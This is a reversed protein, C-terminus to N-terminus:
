RSTSSVELSSSGQDALSPSLEPTPTKNAPLPSAEMKLEQVSCSNSVPSSFPTTVAETLTKVKHMVGERRFHVHFTDALKSMLIDVKQLSSCVIRVDPSSLMGAIYSSVPINKLVRVLLDDPSHYIMKLISNLCKHKVAPGVSSYYVDYIVAM